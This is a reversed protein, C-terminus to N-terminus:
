NEKRSHPRAPFRHNWISIVPKTPVIVNIRQTIQICFTFSQRILGCLTLQFRYDQRFYLEYYM